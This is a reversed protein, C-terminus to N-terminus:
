SSILRGSRCNVTFTTGNLRLKLFFKDRRSYVRTVVISAAHPAVSSPSRNLHTGASAAAEIQPRQELPASVIRVRNRREPQPTSPPPGDIRAGTQHHIRSVTCVGDDAIGAQVSPAIKSRGLQLHYAGPIPLDFRHQCSCLRNGLRREAGKSLVPDRREVNRFCSRWSAPARWATM